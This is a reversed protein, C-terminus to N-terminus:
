QTKAATAALLREVQSVLASAQDRDDGGSLGQVTRVIGHLVRAKERRANRNDVPMMKLSLLRAELGHLTSAQPENSSLHIEENM